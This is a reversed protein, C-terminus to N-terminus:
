DYRDIVIFICITLACAGGADGVVLYQAHMHFNSLSVSDSLEYGCDSALM